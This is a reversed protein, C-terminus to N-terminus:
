KRFMRATTEFLGKVPRQQEGQQAGLVIIVGTLVPILWQTAKQIRLATTLEASNSSSAETVGPAGEETHKAQTAGAIAATVSAAGALGTVITKVVTNTRSEQQNALRTKNALILGIGGVGHAAIAALQVPTWRAWGNSALRLRESPDSSTSAAGNLGVAGMLSGGFWAAAGLDHLSRVLTNRSPMFAGEEQM